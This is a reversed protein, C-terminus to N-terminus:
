TKDASELSVEEEVYWSVFVFRDLSGSENPDLKWLHGTLYESHFGKGLTGILDVFRSSPLVGDKGNDIEDFIIAAANAFDLDPLEDVDDEM